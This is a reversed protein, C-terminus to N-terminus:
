PLLSARGFSWITVVGATMPSDAMYQANKLASLKGKASAKQLKM